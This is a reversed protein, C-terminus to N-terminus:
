RKKVKIEVDQEVLIKPDGGSGDVDKSYTYIKYKGPLLYEFKYTGDFHTSIKDDYFDNDGYVIYVDVDAGYYSYNVITGTTNYYHVFVKGQITAKGGIGPGKRCGTLVLAFVVLLLKYNM